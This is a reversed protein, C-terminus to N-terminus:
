AASILRIAPRGDADILVLAPGALEYRVIRRLAEFYASEVATVADECAIFTSGIDSFAINAGDISVSAFFRNCGSHGVAGGGEALLLTPQVGALADVGEIEAVMWEIGSIAPQADAREEARALVLEIPEAAPLTVPVSAGTDFLIREGTAISATLGSGAGDPIDAPDFALEFAIPVQGAPSVVQEAITAGEADGGVIGVLRVTLVADDPLAMRERYGATGAITQQQARATEPVALSVGAMMTLCTFDRRNMKTKM